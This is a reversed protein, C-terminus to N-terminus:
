VIRREPLLIPLFTLKTGEQKLMYRQGKEIRAGEGDLRIRLGEKTVFTKLRGSFEAVFPEYRTAQSLSENTTQNM